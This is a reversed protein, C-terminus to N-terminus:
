KLTDLNETLAKRSEIVKELADMVKQYKKSKPRRMIRATNDRTEGVMKAVTLIDGSRKEDLLKNKDDM